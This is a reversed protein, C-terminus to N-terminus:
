AVVAGFPIEPIEYRYNIAYPAFCCDCQLLSTPSGASSSVPCGAIEKINQWHRHLSGTANLPM